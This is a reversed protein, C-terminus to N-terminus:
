TDKIEFWLQAETANWNRRREPSQTCRKFQRRHKWARRLHLMLCFGLPLVELPGSTQVSGALLFIVKWRLESNINQKISNCMIHFDPASCWSNLLLESVNLKVATLKPFFCCCFFIKVLKMPRGNTPPGGSLKWTPNNKSVQNTFM